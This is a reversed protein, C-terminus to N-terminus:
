FDIKKPLSEFSFFYETYNEITERQGYQRIQVVLVEWDSPGIEEGRQARDKWDTLLQNLSQRLDISRVKTQIVKLISDLREPVSRSKENLFDGIRQLLEAHPGIQEKELYTDIYTM